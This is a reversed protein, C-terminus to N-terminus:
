SSAAEGLFDEGNIRERSFYEVRWPAWLTELHKATEM